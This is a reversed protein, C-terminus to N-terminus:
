MKTLFYNFFIRGADISPGETIIKDTDYGYEQLLLRDNVFIKNGVARTVEPHFQMGFLRLKQNIYAQIETHNNRAVVESGPPLITVEDFHHQWIKEVLKLYLETVGLDNFEVDGWGAEFGNPSSRISNEGVLARCILQHGYCIGMQAIGALSANQIFAEARNTFPARETISLESGSHIVHTFSRDMLDDPFAAESDIYLSTIDASQPLWPTITPNAIRSTSYDLILISLM